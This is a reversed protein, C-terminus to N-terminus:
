TAAGRVETSRDKDEPCCITISSLDGLSSNCVCPPSPSCIAAEPIETQFGANSTVGALKILPMIVSFTLKKDGDRGGLEYEFSGCWYMHM